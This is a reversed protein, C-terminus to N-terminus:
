TSRKIQDILPNSRYSAGTNRSPGILEDPASFQARASLQFGHEIFSVLM